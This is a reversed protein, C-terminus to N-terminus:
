MSEKPRAFPDRGRLSYKLMELSWPVQRIRVTKKIQISQITFSNIKIRNSIANKNILKNWLCYSFCYGTYLSTYCAEKPMLLFVHNLRRGYHKPNTLKSKFSVLYPDYALNLDHQLQLFIYRKRCWEKLIGYAGMLVTSLLGKYWFRRHYFLGKQSDQITQLEM